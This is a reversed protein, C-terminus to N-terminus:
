AFATDRGQRFDEVYQNGDEEELKSTEAAPTATAQRSATQGTKKM